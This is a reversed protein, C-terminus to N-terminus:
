LPGGAYFLGQSTLERKMRTAEPHSLGEYRQEYDRKAPEADGGTVQAPIRHVVMTVTDGTRISCFWSRGEPVPRMPAAPPTDSRRPPMGMMAKIRARGRAADKALRDMQRVAEDESRAVDSLKHGADDFVAWGGRSRQVRM